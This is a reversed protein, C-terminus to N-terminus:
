SNSYMIAIADKSLHFWALFNLVFQKIQTDDKWIRLLMKNYIIYAM